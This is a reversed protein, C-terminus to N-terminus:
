KDRMVEIGFFEKVSVGVIEETIEEERGIVDSSLNVRCGCSADEILVFGDRM